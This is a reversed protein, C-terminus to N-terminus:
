ERNKLTLLLLSNDLLKGLHVWTRLGLVCVRTEQGCRKRRRLPQSVIVETSPMLGVESIEGKRCLLRMCQQKKATARAISGKAVVQPINVNVHVSHTAILQLVQCIRM